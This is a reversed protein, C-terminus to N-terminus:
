DEEMGFLACLFSEQLEVRMLERDRVLPRFGKWRENVFDRVQDMGQDDILEGKRYLYAALRFSCFTGQCPGKGIRSRRGIEELTPLAGEDKLSQVIEDVMYESVMECECILTDRREPNSMWVRPSKGPETWEGKASAPLPEKDTLCPNTNGMRRAVIDAAKEAMLRFTTLKGGTITTLNDINDEAHTKLTYNRSINRGGTGSTRVLPRVGAYARIYRANGLSPVMDAGERIIADVEATTPRIDDLNDIELSTTGIISVTGGPVLIDADSAPRLRNIVRENMRAQTILLSGKSYSMSINAGAMTAVSDAWAGTANVFQDAAITFTKGTRRHEVRAALLKGDERDFGTLKINRMITAGNAMADAANDLSLMFPDIVADQVAFAAKLAEALCPEIERAAEPTLEEVPIGFKRCLEPFRAVYDDDDKEVAVFLGGTDEICHPALRKLLQNERHCEAAADGDKFVYRAGSHLLGHNAGSAGSNIDKQDILICDIGRLALDRFVGTGTAGGGIVLVQTEM